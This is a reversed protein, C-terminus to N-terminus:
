SQNLRALLRDLAANWKDPTDYRGEAIERRVRAVLDCRVEDAHLPRLRRPANSRRAEAGPGKWWARSRSLPGRLGFSTHRYM